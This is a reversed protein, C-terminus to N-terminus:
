QNKRIENAVLACKVNEAVDHVRIFDAGKFVGLATTALTGALAEEPRVGLTQWIIRKRSAGLLIPRGYERLRELHHLIQFSERAELGFGIGPDLIIREERIGAKDALDLSKRFFAELDRFIDGTPEMLRRNMMICVPVGAEGVVRAMDPDGWLGTVDNIMDAGAELAAAAVSAKYTDVSIPLSGAEKLARIPPLIRRMEEEAEVFSAGPRTSEGGIDILHGGERAIALGRELAAETLLFRGGDSFSDPTTNLIGMIYPGQQSDFELDGIRM